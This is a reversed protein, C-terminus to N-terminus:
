TMNDYAYTHTHTHGFFIFEHKSLELLKGTLCIFLYINSSSIYLCLQLLKINNYIILINCIYIYIYVPM